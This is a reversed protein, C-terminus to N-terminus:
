GIPAPETLTPINTEYSVTYYQNTNTNDSISVTGDTLVTLTGNTYNVSMNEKPRYQSPLKSLSGGAVNQRAYVIITVCYFTKSPQNVSYGQHYTYYAIAQLNIGDTVQWLRTRYLHRAMNESLVDLVHQIDSGTTIINANGDYDGNFNYPTDIVPNSKFYTNLETATTVWMADARNSSTGNGLTFIRGSTSTLLNYTGIVVESIQNTKLNSGVAISNSGQTKCNNGFIKSNIILDTSVSGGNNNGIIFINNKSSPIINGEGIIYNTTSTLSESSNNDGIIFTNSSISKSDGFIFSNEGINVNSWKDGTVSGGRFSGKNNNWIFYKGTSTINFQSGITGQILLNGNNNILEKNLQISSSNYQFINNTNHSFIINTSDGDINLDSNEHKITFYREEVEEFLYISPYSASISFTHTTDELLGGIAVSIRGSNDGLIQLANALNTQSTTRVGLILKRTTGAIAANNDNGSQFLLGVGKLADDTKLIQLANASILYTGGVFNETSILTQKLVNLNTATLDGITVLGSKKITLADKPTNNGCGVILLYDNDDWIETNNTTSASAPNKGIVIENLTKATLSEGFVLSYKGLAYNNFGFGFSYDGNVNNNYGMAFSNRGSVNNNASTESSNRGFAVAGEGTVNNYRGFALSYLANAINNFGWASSHNTTAQNKQGFTFSRDGNNINNTETNSLPLSGLSVAGIGTVQNKRGVNFSYESSTNIVNDRGHLFVYDSSIVNSRGFLFSNSAGITNGIGFIVSNAGNIINKTSSTSVGFIFSGNGTQIENFQGFVFSNNTKTINSQGFNLSFTGINDTTVNASSIILASKGPTYLLRNGSISPITTDTGSILLTGNSHLSTLPIVNVGVKNSEIYLNTNFRINKTTNITYYTSSLSFRLAANDDIEASTGLRLFDNNARIIHLPSYSYVKKTTDAINIIFNGNIDTKFENFVPSTSSPKNYLRLSDVIFGINHINNAYERNNAIVMLESTYTDVNKQKKIGISYTSNLKKLDTTNVASSFSENINGLLILPAYSESGNPLANTLILKHQNDRIDGLGGNDLYFSNQRFIQNVIVSEVPSSGGNYISYNGAIPKYLNLISFSYEVQKPSIFSFYNEGLYAENSTLLEEGTTSELVKGLDNWNIVYDLDVKTITGLQYVMGNGKRVHNINLLKNNIDNRFINEITEDYDVVDKFVGWKVLYTKYDNESLTETLAPLNEVVIFKDGFGRYGQEGRVGDRGPLGIYGQNGTKGDAGQKEELLRFNKNLKAILNNMNDSFLIYDFLISM